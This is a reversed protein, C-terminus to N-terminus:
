KHQLVCLFSFMICKDKKVM